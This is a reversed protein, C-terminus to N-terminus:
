DGGHDARPRDLVYDWNENYPTYSRMPAPAYIVPQARMVVPADVTRYHAAHRIHHPPPATQGPAEGIFILNAFLGIASIVRHQM